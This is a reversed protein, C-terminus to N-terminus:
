SANHGLLKYKLGQSTPWTHLGLVKQRNGLQNSFRMCSKNHVIVIILCDLCLICLINHMYADCVFSISFYTPFKRNIIFTHNQSLMKTEHLFIVQLLM